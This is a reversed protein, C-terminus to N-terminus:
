VYQPERKTGVKELTTTYKLRRLDFAPMTGELVDVVKDRIEKNEISGSVYSIKNNSKDISCYIIQEADSAIAINPNHTVIIVQRKNKAESICKVLKHYVSHNDLNDEPQDVILPIENKSLALYFVLLVIGREGPSLELLHRGGMKLSYEVGVYELYTLLNYFAEKNKVKKSSLDIDEYVCQLVNTIFSSISDANNFDTEKILENMKNQSETKGNFIGKYTQKVYDLLQSVLLKDSLVIDVAFEIKDELNGLLKQLEKEVPEYITGYVKAIAQKQEFLAKVKILRELKKHEYDTPLIKEIYENEAKLAEISGELLPNGIIELRMQEWIKLDDLYKQYAKEEADTQAILAQKNKVAMELQKYLSVTTANDSNDLIAQLGLREAALAGIRHDIVTLPTSYKILFTEKNFGFELILDELSLNIRQIRDTLSIIEAKAANLKDIGKNVTTLETKKAEIETQLEIIKSDIEELSKQYEQSQNNKPKQVEKPKNDEHRRLDDVRKKLNDTIEKKYDSTHRNELRIIGRNLDGIENQIEKISAFIAVSKNQILESLNKTDGRETTDVYSFIVKNIEKQFEDELDNCVKEIYKQPLYQANEITTGYDIEGLSINGELEGDCWKISGSYDNALNKPAKRFRDTTLFSAEVMSKSKCLHGIIDSLASKGSGKNGIIATLGNNIPINFDFWTELSNKADEKKRVSISEIYTRKNKEFKDLKPPISGIFVREKPQYICQILGEFTPNAKIWLNEKTTYNRPDHNDSCMILPKEDIVKFVHKNYDDIDSTKGIEFFHILKAIDEKIAMKVPTANTIEKDIGNTKRGAHISVLGGQNHAFEIIDEFTWYITQDSTIAKAKQRRMIAEFDAALVELNCCESFILIIHLNASGKDTRLEVGPFFTIEPALNRLNAIRKSDIVFHDTIAAATIGNEKLVTCLLKDSDNGKYEADYSSATHVHLDWKRWESGRPYETLM